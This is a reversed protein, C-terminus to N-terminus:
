GSTGRFRPARKELFAALGEAFDPREAIRTLAVLERTLHEELATL